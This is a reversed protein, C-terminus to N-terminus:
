KGTKCLSIIRGTFLDYDYLAEEADSVIIKLEQELNINAKTTLELYRREIDVRRVLKDRVIDKM